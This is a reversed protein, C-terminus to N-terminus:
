RRRRRVSLGAFGLLALAGPAPVAALQNDVIGFDASNATFGDPLVFATRGPVFSTESAADLSFAMVASATATNYGSGPGSPGGKTGVETKASLSLSFAEGVRAEFTLAYRQNIPDGFSQGLFNQAFRGSISYTFGSSSVVSAAWEFTVQNFAQDFSAPSGGFSFNALPNVYATVLVPSGAGGGDRRSVIIDNATTVGSGAALMSTYNSSSDCIMSIGGNQGPEAYATSSGTVREFTNPVGDWFAAATSSNSTSTSATSSQSAKLRTGYYVRAGTQMVGALAPSAIGIVVLAPVLTGPARRVM